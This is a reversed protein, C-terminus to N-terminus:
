GRSFPMTSWRGLMSTLLDLFAPLMPGWGTLSLVRGTSGFRAPWQRRMPYAFKRILGHPDTVTWSHFGVHVAQGQRSHSSAYYDVVVQLYSFEGLNYPGEDFRGLFNPSEITSDSVKSFARPNLEFEQGKAYKERINDRVNPPMVIVSDLNVGNIVAPPPPLATPELTATSTAGPRATPEQTVTRTMHPDVLVGVIPTLRPLDPENPIILIQGASIMRPDFIGNAEMIAEMLVGYSLSIQFLNEEAQVTHTIAESASSNHVGLNISGTATDPAVAGICGSGVAQSVGSEVSFEAFGLRTLGFDEFGEIEFIDVAAIIIIAASSTAMFCIVVLGRIFLRKRHM